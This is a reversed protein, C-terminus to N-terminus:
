KNNGKKGYDIVMMFIFLINGVIFVHRSRNKSTAVARCVLACTTDLSMQVVKPASDLILKFFEEPFGNSEIFVPRSKLRIRVKGPPSQWPPVYSTV